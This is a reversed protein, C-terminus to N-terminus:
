TPIVDEYKVVLQRVVRAARRKDEDTLAVAVGGVTHVVSIRARPESMAIAQEASATANELIRVVRGVLWTCQQAGPERSSPKGGGIKESATMPHNYLDATYACECLKTLSRVIRPDAIDEIM